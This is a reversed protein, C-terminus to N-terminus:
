YSILKNDDVVTKGKGRRKEDLKGKKKPSIIKIGFIVHILLIISEKKHTIQEEM